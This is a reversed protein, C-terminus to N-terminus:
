LGQEVPDFGQVTFERFWLGQVGYELIDLLKNNDLLQICNRTHVPFDKLYGNLESVQAVWGKVTMGGVLRLKRRM